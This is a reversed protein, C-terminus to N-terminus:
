KARGDPGYQATYYRHKIIEDMGKKSLRKLEPVYDGMKEVVMRMFHDPDKEAQKILTEFNRNGNHYDIASAAGAFWKTLDVMHPDTGDGKRLVKDAWKQLNGTGYGAHGPGIKGYIKEGLSAKRLGKSMGKNRFRNISKFADWVEQTMWAQRVPRWYGTKYRLNKPTHRGAVVVKAAKGSASRPRSIKKETTKPATKTANVAKKSSMGTLAETTKARGGTKKTVVKPTSARKSSARKSGKTSMAKIQQMTARNIRPRAMRTVTSKNATKNTTAM